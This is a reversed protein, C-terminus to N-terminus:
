FLTGPRLDFNAWVTEIRTKHSQDRAKFSDSYFRGYLQTYLDSDYGSLLFKGKISGAKDALLTHQQITFDNTYRQRGGRAAMDYPPDFYFVTNPDDYKDIFEVFDLKEIQMRRLENVVAPLGEIKSLYRATTLSCNYRSENITYSWGNYQKHIGTYGFSQLARLFFIRARELDDGPGNVYVSEYEQRSHPTLELKQILENGRTQLVKFFNYVEANIDNYTRIKAWHFNLSIAGSGGFADALHYPRALRLKGIIFDQLGPQNKGGFYNIASLRKVKPM